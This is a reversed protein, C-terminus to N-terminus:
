NQSIVGQLILMVKCVNGLAVTPANTLYVTFEFNGGTMIIPFESLNFRAEPTPHGSQIQHTGAAITGASVPGCGATLLKCPAELMVENQIKVELMSECFIAEWMQIPTDATVLSEYALSLGIAKCLFSQNAPLQKAQRLNTHQIKKSNATTINFQQGLARTFFQIGTSSVSVEETDYLVHFKDM